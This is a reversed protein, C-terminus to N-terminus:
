ILSFLQSPLIEARFLPYNGYIRSLTSLLHQRRARRFQQSNEVNYGLSGLAWLVDGLQSPTFNPLQQLTTDLLVAVLDREGDRLDAKSASPIVPDPFHLDAKVRALGWLTNYLGFINMHPVQSRLALLLAQRYSAPLISFRVQV